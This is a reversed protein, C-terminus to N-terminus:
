PQAQISASTSAIAAHSVNTHPPKGPKRGWAGPPGTVSGFGRRIPISHCQISSEKRYTHPSTSLDTGSAESTGTIRRGCDAAFIQWQVDRFEREAIIVAIIRVNETGGYPTASADCFYGVAAASEASQDSIMRTM